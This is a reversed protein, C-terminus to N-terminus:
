EYNHTLSKQGEYATKLLNYNRRLTHLEEILYDPSELAQYIIAGEADKPIPLGLLYSVTPVVDPLWVTRRLMYGKKINPGAIILLGKMSGVGYEGTTLKRGHEGSTEKTSAYVVDGVRDGYLGLIRADEKKLAL